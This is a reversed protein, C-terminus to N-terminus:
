GAVLGLTGGVLLGGVIALVGVSLSVRSGFVIRSLLDRGLQDTGLWHHIGPGEGLRGAGTHNPDTLPLVDASVALLAVVAIWAVSIWWLVGPHRRDDNDDDDDPSPVM